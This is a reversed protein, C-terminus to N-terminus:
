PRQFIAVFMPIKRIAGEIVDSGAQEQLSILKFRKYVTLLEDKSYQKEFEGTRPFICSNPEPGPSTRVLDTTGVGYFLYCGGPLLKTYSQEIVQSRGPQPICITVNSDIIAQFSHEAFPWKNTIDLQVFTVQANALAARQRAVSLSGEEIFDVGTVQFGLMALGISNRGKGCGLDLVHTKEPMFGQAILFNAFEVVCNSPTESHIKTFTGGATHEEQWVEKQPRM